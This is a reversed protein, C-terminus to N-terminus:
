KVVHSSLEKGLRYIGGLQPGVSSEGRSGAEGLHELSSGPDRRCVGCSRGVRLRVVQSGEPNLGNAFSSM